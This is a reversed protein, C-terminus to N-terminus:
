ADPNPSYVIVREIKHLVNVDGGGEGTVQLPLLKPYITTWFAKENEPAEKAWEALRVTGGLAEAAMAIADLATQTNKNRCGKPRGPGPKGGKKFADM